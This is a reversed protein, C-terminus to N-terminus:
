VRFDQLARYFIATEDANLIDDAADSELITQLRSQLMTYAADTKDVYNAEGNIKKMSLGHQNKLRELWGGSCDFETSSVGIKGKGEHEQRGHTYEATQRKQVVGTLRSRSM